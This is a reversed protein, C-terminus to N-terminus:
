RVRLARAVVVNALFAVPLSVVLHLLTWWVGRAARGQLFAASQGQDETVVLGPRADTTTAAGRAAM